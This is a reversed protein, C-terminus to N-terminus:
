RFLETSFLEVSILLQMKNFSLGLVQAFFLLLELELVIKIIKISFISSEPSTAYRM